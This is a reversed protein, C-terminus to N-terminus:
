IDPVRGFFNMVEYGNHLMDLPFHSSVTFIPM